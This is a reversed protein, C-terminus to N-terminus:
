SFSQGCGCTSKANPNKIDFGAGQLSDNYDIETGTLMPASYPDVMIKVGFLELVDDEENAKEEFAMGYQFGSCGGGEVYVRLGYGEKREATMLEKVKESAKETLNIM